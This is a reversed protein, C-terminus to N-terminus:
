AGTFFKIVEEIHSNWFFWNHTGPAEAYSHDLGLAKAHAAFARNHELLFDDKGCFQILHPANPCGKMKEALWFLDADSGPVTEPYDEGFIMRMDDDWQRERAIRAIDMVGSLAGAAAYKDPNRMAIKYAGYGGMSLGAIFNRERKESLNFMNHVVQPLEETIHSYFREGHVMDEYFGRGGNPMIVAIGYANAFAEIQSYRSWCTYDDTLGHLLWLVPIDSVDHGREPIVARFDQMHGLPVSYFNCSIIAM